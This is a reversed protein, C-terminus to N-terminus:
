ALLRIPRSCQVDKTQLPNKVCGHDSESIVRDDLRKAEPTVQRPDPTVWGAVRLLSALDAAMTSPRRHTTRTQRFARMQRM